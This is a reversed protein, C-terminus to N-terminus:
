LAPIFPLCALCIADAEHDTEFEKNNSICAKAAAISFKKDLKDSPNEFRKWKFLAKVLSMKWDIARHLGFQLGTREKFGFLLGGILLTINEAESTFTNNYSVYREMNGYLVDLDYMDINQRTLALAKEVTPIVGGLEEPNLVCSHVLEIATDKAEQNKRVIAFGLNKWGPDIGVSYDFFPGDMEGFEM